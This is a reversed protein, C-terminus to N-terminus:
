FSYSIGARIVDLSRMGKYDDYETSKIADTITFAYSVNVGFRGFTVGLGVRWAFNLRNYDSIDMLYSHPHGSRHMAFDYRFDPGTFVDLHKLVPNSMSRGSVGLMADFGIGMSYGHFSRGATSVEAGAGPTPMGYWMEATASRRSYNLYAGPQIFLSRHFNIRYQAGLEIGWYKSLSEDGNDNGKANSGISHAFNANVRWENKQATVTLVSIAGLIAFGLLTKKM